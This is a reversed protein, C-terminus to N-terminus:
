PYRDERGGHEREVHRGLLLRAAERLEAVENYVRLKVADQPDPEGLQLYMRDFSNYLNALTM